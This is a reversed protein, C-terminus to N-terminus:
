TLSKSYKNCPSLSREISHEISAILLNRNKEFHDFVHLITSYYLSPIHRRIPKFFLTHRYIISLVVNREQLTSTILACIQTYMTLFSYKVVHAWLFFSEQIFSKKIRILESTRTYVFGDCSRGLKFLQKLYRFGYCDM